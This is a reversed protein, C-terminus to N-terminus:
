NGIDDSLSIGHRVQIHQKSQNSVHHPKGDSGDTEQGSDLESIGHLIPVSLGPHAAQFVDAGRYAVSTLVDGVAGVTAGEGHQGVDVDFRFSYLNFTSRTQRRDGARSFRSFCVFRCGFQNLSTEMKIEIMHSLKNVVQLASRVTVLKRASGELEVAFVLRAKPLM